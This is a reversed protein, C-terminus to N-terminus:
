EAADKRETNEDNAPGPAEADTKPSTVGLDEKAQKAAAKEAAKAKKELRKKEAKEAAERKKLEKKDLAAIHAAEEEKAAEAEAIANEALTKVNLYDIKGTGLVPIEDVTVIKKRCPSKPFAM